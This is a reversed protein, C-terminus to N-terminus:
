RRPGAGPRLGSRRGPSMRRNWVVYAARRVWAMVLARASGTREDAVSVADPWELRVRRHLRAAQKAQSRALAVSWQTANVRFAALTETQAVLDGHRLVRVYLDEDILYPDQASWGGCRRVVDTRLLVSMPEGFLNTGARVVARVAERGPVVGRLRGLGRGSVLVRDDADVLDRRCSVMVAGPNEQMAAVQREVCRSGILDDGCVLKVLDGTAADTVRNWNREAGGGAETRLLRVRDDGAYRQLLEWTGDTSSHDAVVVELSPYSQSLISDMTREIYDANQFAPVVISVLPSGDTV